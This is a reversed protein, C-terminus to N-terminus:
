VREEVHVQVDTTVKVAGDNFSNEHSEFQEQSGSGSENTTGGEIKTSPGIEFQETSDSEEHHTGTSLTALSYAGPRRKRTRAPAHAFAHTTPDPPPDVSTFSKPM